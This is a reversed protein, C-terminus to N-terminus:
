LSEGEKCIKELIKEVNGGIIIEKIQFIWCVGGDKGVTYTNGGVSVKQGETCIVTETGNNIEFAKCTGNVNRVTYM